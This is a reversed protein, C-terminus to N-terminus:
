HRAVSVSPLLLLHVMWIEAKILSDRGSLKKAGGVEKGENM